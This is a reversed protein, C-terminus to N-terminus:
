FFSGARSRAITRFSERTIALTQRLRAAFGFTRPVQPIFVPASEAIGTSTSSASLAATRRRIGSWWDSATHQVLSFRLYTFALAGLAIGLWLLRNWLFLGELAILRTNKEIPTWVQTM